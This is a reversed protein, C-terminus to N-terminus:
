KRLPNYPMGTWEMGLHSSFELVNLRIGHVLIAFLSLVMNLLHGSGLILLAGIAAGPSAFGVSMAMQNFSDAVAVGALGVAFLRIYSVIDGFFNMVSLM